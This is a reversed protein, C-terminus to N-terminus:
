PWFSPPNNVLQHLRRLIPLNHPLHLLHLPDPLLHPLLLLSPLTEPTPSASPLDPLGNGSMVTGAPIIVVGVEGVWDSGRELAFSLAFSLAFTFAFAFPFIFVCGRIGTGRVGWSSFTLTCIFPFTFAFGLLGCCKRGGQGM